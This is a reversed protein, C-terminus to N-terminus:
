GNKIEGGMIEEIWKFAKKPDFRKPMEEGENSTYFFTYVENCEYDFNHQCYKNLKCILCISLKNVNETNLIKSM